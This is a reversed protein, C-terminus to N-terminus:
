MVHDTHIIGDDRSKKVSWSVYILFSFWILDLLQYVLLPSYFTYPLYLPSLVITKVIVLAVIKCFM